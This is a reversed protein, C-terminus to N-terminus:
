KTREGRGVQEGKTSERTVGGKHGRSKVRGRGKRGGERGGGGGLGPEPGSRGDRGRGGTVPLM